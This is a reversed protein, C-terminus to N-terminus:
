SPEKSADGAKILSNPCGGRCARYLQVAIPNTSRFPARQHEICKQLPIEGVVPCDVTHGMLAGEVAAKIRNLDGKYHGKLVQNVVTVSYGIKDAARKQGIAASTVRLVDIWDTSM